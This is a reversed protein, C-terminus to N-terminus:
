RKNLQLERVIGSQSACAIVEGNQTFVTLRGHFIGDVIASLQIDFLLWPTIPRAIIRIVNDLSTAGLPRGVNM